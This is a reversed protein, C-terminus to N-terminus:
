SVASELWLQNAAKDLMEPTRLAPKGLRNSVRAVTSVKYIATIQRQIVVVKVLRKGRQSIRAVITVNVSVEREATRSVEV